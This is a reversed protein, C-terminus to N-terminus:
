GGDLYCCPVACASRCRWNGGQRGRCWLPKSHAMSLRRAANTIAPGAKAAPMTRALLADFPVHIFGCRTHRGEASLKETRARLLAAEWSNPLFQTLM